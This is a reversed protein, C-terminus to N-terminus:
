HHQIYISFKSKWLACRWTMFLRMNRRRLKQKKECTHLADILFETCFPLCVEWDIENEISDQQKDKNRKLYNLFGWSFIM